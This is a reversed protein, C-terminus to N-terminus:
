GRSINTQIRVRNEQIQKQQHNKVKYWRLDGDFWWQPCSKKSKGLMSFAFGFM